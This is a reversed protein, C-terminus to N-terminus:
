FQNQAYFERIKLMEERSVNSKQSYKRTKIENYLDKYKTFDDTSYDPPSNGFKTTTISSKSKIQKEEITENNVPTEMNLISCSSSDSDQEDMVQNLFKKKPGRMCASHPPLQQGQKIEEEDPFRNLSVNPIDNPTLSITKISQGHKVFFGLNLKRSAVAQQHEDQKTVENRAM